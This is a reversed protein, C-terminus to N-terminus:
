PVRSGLRQAIREIVTPTLWNPPADPTGGEMLYDDIVRVIGQHTTQALTADPEQGELLVRTVEDAVDNPPWELCARRLM